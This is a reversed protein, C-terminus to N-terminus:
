DVIDHFREEAEKAVNAELELYADLLKDGDKTLSSGHAGDRDLLQMGLAAETDKMIRWAKSYAMGMERAAAYLSGKERVGKCLRAVGPGFASNSDVGPRVISIKVNAELARFSGMPRVREKTGRARQM